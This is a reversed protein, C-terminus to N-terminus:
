RALAFEIRRNAFRGADTANAAIPQTDGAARAILRESPLGRAALEAIVAQARLQSLTLNGDRTGTGDTHGIVDIRTQPPLLAIVRAAGDLVAAGDAPVQASGSAFNISLLNLAALVREPTADVPADLLATMAALARENANRSAAAADFASPAVPPPVCARLALVGLVALMLLPWGVNWFGRSEPRDLVPTAPSHAADAASSSAAM